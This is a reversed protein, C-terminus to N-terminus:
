KLDPDDKLHKRSLYRAASMLAQEAKRERGYANGSGFRCALLALAADLIADFTPDESEWKFASAVEFGFLSGEPDIGHLKELQLYLQKGQELVDVSPGYARTGGRAAQCVNAALSRMTDRIAGKQQEVINEADPGLVARLKVRRERYRRENENMRDGIEHVRRLYEEPTPYNESHVILGDARMREVIEQEATAWVYISNRTIKRWLDTAEKRANVRGWMQGKPTLFKLRRRYLMADCGPPRRRAFAEELEITLDSKKM